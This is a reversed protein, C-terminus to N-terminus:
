GNCVYKTLSSNVEGSDLVGNGNFGLGVLKPEAMQVIQPGPSWLYYESTHPDMKVTWRWKFWCSRSYRSAKLLLTQKLELIVM